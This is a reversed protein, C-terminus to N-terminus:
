LAHIIGCFDCRKDSVCVILGDRHKYCMQGDKLVYWGLADDPIWERRADKAKEVSAVAKSTPIGGKVFRHM